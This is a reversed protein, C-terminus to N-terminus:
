EKLKQSVWRRHLGQSLGKLPWDVVYGLEMLRPVLGSAYPASALIQIFSGAPIRDEIQSVTDKYWQERYAKNQSQLGVNYNQIVEDPAVLGYKGSLIFWPKGTKESEGEAYQKYMNFKSGAYLEAAKSKDEPGVEPNKTSACSILIYPDSSDETENFVQNVALARKARLGGRSTKSFVDDLYIRDLANRYVDFRYPKSQFFETPDNLTKWDEVDEDTALEKEFESKQEDTMWASPDGIEETYDAEITVPFGSYGSDLLLKTRLYEEMLGEMVNLPRGDPTVAGIISADSSIVADPFFNKVTEIYRKLSSRRPSIGLFHFKPSLEGASKKSSLYSVLQAQEIDKKAVPFSPIFEDISLISKIRQELDFPSLTGPQLAVLINAGTDRISQVQEAYRELRKLTEDQDEIKDPAVVYLNEPHKTARALELYLSLIEKWRSDSIVKGTQLEQFAGSDVFVKTGMDATRVLSDKCKQGCGQANSGVALGALRFGEIDREAKHGSSFFTYNEHLSPSLLSLLDGSSSKLLEILPYDEPYRPEYGKHLFEFEQKFAVPDQLAKQNDM